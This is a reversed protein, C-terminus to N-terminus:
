LDPDVNMMGPDQLSSSWSQFPQSAVYPTHTQNNNSYNRITLDNSGFKFMPESQYQQLPQPRVLCQKDATKKQRRSKIALQKQQQQRKRAKYQGSLEHHRELVREMEDRKTAVGRIHRQERQRDPADM